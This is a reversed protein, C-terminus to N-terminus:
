SRTGPRAVALRRIRHRRGGLALLVMGLGTVVLVYPAGGAWWQGTHVVTAGTIATGNAAAIVPLATSGTAATAPAVPTAVVTFCEAAPNTEAAMASYTADGSYSASFCWAGPTAPQLADGAPLDYVARGASSSAPTSVTALTSGGSCPTGVVAERCDSFTVSGTPTGDPGTLVASDLATAGVTLTPATLLATTFGPDVTSPSGAPKTSAAVVEFCQTAPTSDSAAQYAGNGGYAALFCYTGTAAPAFPASTATASTPTTSAAHGVQAQSSGSGASSSGSGSAASGTGLVVSGIDSAGTSGATCATAQGFPGCATFTVSGAPTGGGTGTVVAVDTDTSGLTITSASPSATISDSSVPNPTPVASQATFCEDTVSTTTTNTPTHPRVGGVIPPVWILGFCYVGAQTPTFPSSTAVFSTGAQDASLSLPTGLPALGPSSTAATSGFTCEGLPPPTTMPFPGCTAFQVAGDSSAGSNVGPVVPTTATDTVGSGLAVTSASPQTLITPEVPSAGAQSGVLGLALGAAMLGAGSLALLREWGQTAGRRSGAPRRHRGGTARARRGHVGPRTRLTTLGGGAATSDHDDGQM